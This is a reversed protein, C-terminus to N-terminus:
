RKLFSDLPPRDAPASAATAPSPAADALGGKGGGQWISRLRKKLATDEEDLTKVIAEYDAKLKAKTAKDYEDKFEALYKRRADDRKGQIALREQQVARLALAEPSNGGAGGRPPPNDTRYDMSDGRIQAAGLMAANNGAGIRERSARDAAARQEAFSGKVAETKRAQGGKEREVTIAETTKFRQLATQFRLKVMEEATQAPNALSEVVDRELTAPDLEQVKGGEFTVRLRAPGSPAGLRGDGPTAPQVIGALGPQVPQQQVGLPNTNEADLTALGQQLSPAPAAPAATAPTGRNAPAGGPLVEVGKVEQGGITFVSQALKAPDKDLQYARLAEGIARLRMPATTAENKLYGQWDGGKALHKGFEESGKLVDAPSPNFKAPDGGNLIHQARVGDIYKSAAKGAEDYLDRQKKQRAIESQQQGWEVGSLGADVVDLPTLMGAM